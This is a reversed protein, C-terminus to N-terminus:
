SLENIAKALSNVSEELLAIAETVSPKEIAEGSWGMGSVYVPVSINSIATDEQLSSIDSTNTNVNEYLDKIDSTSSYIQCLCKNIADAVTLLKKEFELCYIINNGGMTGIIFKGNAYSICNLVDGDISTLFSWAIGDNSHYLTGDNIAAIFKGDSYTVDKLTNKSESITDGATWNLGDSSYYIIGDNNTAVFKGDGYIINTLELSGVTGGSNWTVGDTSYYVNNSGSIVFMGKGYAAGTLSAYGANKGSIWTLGDTSYYTAGSWAVAVFKGDGYVVGYLEYDVNTSVSWNIGDTSYYIGGSYTDNRGVAIFKGDGYCVDYLASCNDVSVGNASVWAIGDASYYIIGGTNSDGSGVTVFVGNGYSTRSHTAYSHISKGDWTTYTTDGTLVKVSSNNGVFVWTATNQDGATTCRYINGTDLNLYYDNVLADAIGTPYVTDTTSIGTIDTGSVWRSGRIGTSGTIGQPGEPGTPGTAGTDGKPGTPGTPGIPGEPGTAGTEGTDGKPGKINGLWIKSM